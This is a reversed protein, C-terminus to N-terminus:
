QHEKAVILREGPSCTVGGEVCNHVIKYQLVQVQGVTPSFISYCHKLYTRFLAFTVAARYRWLSTVTKAVIVAFHEDHLKNRRGQQNLVAKQQRPLWKTDSM